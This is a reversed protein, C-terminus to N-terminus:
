ALSTVGPTVTRRALQEKVWKLWSASPLGYPRFKEVQGRDENYFLARHVGLKGALPSDILASSDAGSMQFLVRMDFERLGQRDLCQNLNTLTDVWLVTYIGLAPGERLITRFLKAPNPPANESPRSFSYDDEQRRLVRFRQLGYIFLYQASSMVEAPDQLRREIENALELMVPLADRGGGFTVPVPFGDALQKLFDAHPSDVPTGDLLYFRPAAGSVPGTEASSQQAALSVLCTTLIGKAAEDFQGVLLLNRGSQPRFDAATPDKIALAEGLWAHHVRAPVPGEPGRLLRDLLHNKTVDAPANGEFVIQPQSAVHRRQRALEQIRRLYHERQHDPLWVVQFFDNGELLGNADNYIAEGPRSLLRAAPNDDSLILHADTESCQLAIRV